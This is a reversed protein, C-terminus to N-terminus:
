WKPGKNFNGVYHDIDINSSDHNNINNFYNQTLSIGFSIHEFYHVLPTEHIFLPVEIEANSPM